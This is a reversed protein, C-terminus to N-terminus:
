APSSRKRSRFDKSGTSRASSSSTRARLSSKMSRSSRLVFGIKQKIPDVDSTLPKGEFLVQGADAKILGVLISVTTTKGAGNPGLLGVSQGASIKFSVANVAMHAGFQKKIGIVELM